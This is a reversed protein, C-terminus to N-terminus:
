VDPAYSAGYLRDGAAVAHFVPQPSLTWDSTVEGTRSAADNWVLLGAGSIQGGILSGDDVVM